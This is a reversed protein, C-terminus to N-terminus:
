RVNLLRDNEETLTQVALQHAEILQELGKNAAVLQLKSELVQREMQGYKDEL